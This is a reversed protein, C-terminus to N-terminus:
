EKKLYSTRLDKIEPISAFDLASKNSKTKIDQNAGKDLLLKIVEAYGRETAIHLATMGEKDQLGTKAGRDLLVKVVETRGLWSAAYLATYGGPTQLDINAGKDLLTNVVDKCNHVSAAILLSGDDFNIYDVSKISQALYNATTCDEARLMEFFKEAQPDTQAIIETAPPLLLLVIMSIVILNKM